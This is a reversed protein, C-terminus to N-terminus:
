GKILNGIERKEFVVAIPASWKLELRGIGMGLRRSTLGERRSSEEEEKALMGGQRRRGGAFWRKITRDFKKKLPFSTRPKTQDRLQPFPKKRKGRWSAEQTKRLQRRKKKKASLDWGGWNEGQRRPVSITGAEASAGKKELTKRNESDKKLKRSKEGGKGDEQRWIREEIRL